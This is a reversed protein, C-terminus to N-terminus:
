LYLIESERDWAELIMLQMKALEATPTHPWRLRLLVATPSKLATPNVGPQELCTLITVELLYQQINTLM